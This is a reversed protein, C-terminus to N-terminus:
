AESRQGVRAHRKHHGVARVDAHRGQVAAPGHGDRPADRRHRLRGRPDVARGEAQEPSMYAVTGMVNGAQTVLDAAETQADEFAAHQIRAVGFDLIKAVDRDSVRMMGHGMSGFLPKVVVDGMAIAAAMADAANECVVTEPTPLGAEHLLATTYFKDVSREIARPSNMVPIGRKEIWHLADVRYIIQDLSGAPIIRALVADANFMATSGISLGGEVNSGARAVLGEYPLVDGRHGRAALARFLEDTHWGRAGLIAIHM